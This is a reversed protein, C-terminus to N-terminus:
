RLRLARSCAPWASWGQAALVRRAVAVQVAPLAQYAYVPEGRRRYSSWTGPEFQLGGDFGSSGNYDWAAGSECSALRLWVRDRRAIAARTEALERGTWRSAARFWRRDAREHGTLVRLGAAIRFSDAAGQYHSLARLQWREREDLTLRGARQPPKVRDAAAGPGASGVLGAVIALVALAPPDRVSM